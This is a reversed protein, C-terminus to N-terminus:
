DQYWFKSKIGSLAERGHAEEWTSIDPGKACIGYENGFLARLHPSMQYSEKILDFFTYDRFGETQYLDRAYPWLNKFDELRNRNIRFIQYYTVHFRVLTVYLHIDSLTIYNGFLFRQNELRKDLLDLAEFFRKYAIEYKEQSRAFGADYAGQNVQKLIYGNLEDIDNQIAQPYLEPANKKHYKKWAAAFYTPIWAHDNNAAEGTVTDVITPVTSRGTYDPYTRTYIDHLYHVGLVPDVEGPDETFAWGKPTRLVGTTGLSIVEDLGLLKWTIVAKNAFPCAPMWVLRYRNREVPWEDEGDGFKRRFLYDLDKIEGDEQIQQRFTREFLEIGEFDHQVM